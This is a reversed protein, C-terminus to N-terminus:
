HYEETQSAKGPLREFFNLRLTLISKDDAISNMPKKVTEVTSGSLDPEVVIPVLISKFTIFYNFVFTMSLLEKIAVFIIPFLILM